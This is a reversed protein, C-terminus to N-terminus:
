IKDTYRSNNHSTIRHPLTLRIPYNSLSVVKSCPMKTTEVSKKKMYSYKTETKMCTITFTLNLSYFFCLCGHQKNSQGHDHVTCQSNNELKESIVLHYENPIMIGVIKGQLHNKNFRRLLLGCHKDKCNSNM